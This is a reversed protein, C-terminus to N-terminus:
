KHDDSNLQKRIVTKGDTNEAWSWLSQSPRRDKEEKDKHSGLAFGQSPPPSSLESISKFM